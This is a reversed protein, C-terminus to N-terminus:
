YARPRDNMRDIWAALHPHDEGLPQYEDLIQHFPEDDGPDRLRAYKLFPFAVCDAASFEGMLYERGSLMREFLDLSSAMRRGLEAIRGRDPEPARLEAEIQNPPRKWVRDFWELFVDLEARRARDGPFLPPEPYRRELHRLIRTSDAVIQGDDEIVPVLPQASLQEVVTRDGPGLVVSEVGLGKYALALAVREVNTSHPIRYLRIM